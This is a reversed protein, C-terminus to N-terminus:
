GASVPVKPEEKVRAPVQRLGTAGTQEGAKGAEHYEADQNVQWLDFQAEGAVINKACLMATMMAHDQNNYKHM